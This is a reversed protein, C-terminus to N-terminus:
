KLQADLTLLTQRGKKGPNAKQGIRILDFLAPFFLHTELYWFLVWNFLFEAFTNLNFFPNQLLPLSRLCFLINQILPCQSLMKLMKYKKRQTQHVTNLNKM